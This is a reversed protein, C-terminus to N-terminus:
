PHSLSNELPSPFSPLTHLQCKWGTAKLSSPLHSCLRATGQGLTAGPKPPKPHSTVRERSWALFFPIGALLQLLQPKNRTKAPPLPLRFPAPAPKSLLFVPEVEVTDKQRPAQSNIWLWTPVTGKTTGLNLPPGQFGDSAPSMGPPVSLTGTRTPFMGVPM